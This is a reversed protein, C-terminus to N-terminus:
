QIQISRIMTELEFMFDRKKQSPAYVFGDAVLFRGNKEDRFCYNVFPGSMFAGEVKWLSRTELATVGSLTTEFFYPTYIMETRMYNGETPGPIYQQAVSDRTSIIYKSFSETSDFDKLPLSYLLLNLSGTKTDRRIWFFQDEAKAIRYASPFKLTINLAEEIPKTNFLSKNIRRQREKFEVTKLTSIIAGANQKLLRILAEQTPSSVVVMKQPSAYPDTYYKVNNEESIIVKLVTRNRRVFGTFVDNSVQSLDFHPEMQPLGYVENGINDRIADGVRGNWLHDDTVVLLNNINGSSASKYAIKKNGEKCSFVVCLVMAFLVVRM